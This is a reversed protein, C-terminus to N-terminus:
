NKYCGTNSLGGLGTVNMFEGGLILELSFRDELIFGTSYILQKYHTRVGTRVSDLNATDAIHPLEAIKTETPLLSTRPGECGLHSGLPSM